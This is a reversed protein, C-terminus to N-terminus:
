RYIEDGEGAPEDDDEVNSMVFLHSLAEIESSMEFKRRLQKCAACWSKHVVMMIPKPGGGVVGVEASSSDSEKQAVDKTRAWEVWDIRKSNFGDAAALLLPPATLSSVSTTPTTALTTLRPSLLFIMLLFMAAAQIAIHTAVNTSTTTM